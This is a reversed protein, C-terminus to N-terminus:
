RNMFCFSPYSIAELQIKDIPDNVLPAMPVVAEPHEAERLLRVSQLRINPDPNRLNRVVDDFRAQQAPASTHLALIAWFALLLKPLNPLEPVKPVKVTAEGDTGPSGM